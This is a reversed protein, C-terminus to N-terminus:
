NIRPSNSTLLHNWRDIEWSKGDTEIIRLKREVEAALDGEARLQDRYLDFGKSQTDKKEFLRQVDPPQAVLWFRFLEYVQQDPPKAAISKRFDHITSRQEPQNPPSSSQGWVGFTFLVAICLRM